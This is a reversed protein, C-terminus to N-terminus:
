YLARWISNDLGRVVICVYDPLYVIAPSSPTSGSFRTWDNNFAGSSSFSAAWISDDGGRVAMQM